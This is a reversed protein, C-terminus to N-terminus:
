SKKDKIAAIVSVLDRSTGSLVYLLNKHVGVMSGIIKALLVEKSPLKSIESIQQPSLKTQDYFGSKVLLHDNDKAFDVVVSLAAGLDKGVYVVAVPGSFEDLIPKYQTHDQNIVKKFVRSKVVSMSSDVGRLKVRFDSVQAVNMGVYQVVLMATCNELNSCSQQYIQLKKQKSIM